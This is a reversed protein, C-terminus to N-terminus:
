GIRIDIAVIKNYTEETGNIITMVMCIYNGSNEIEVDSIIYVSDNGISTNLDTDKYWVYSPTNCGQAFCTLEIFPTTTDYYNKDPSKTIVTYEYPEYVFIEPLTQQYMDSTAIEHIVECRFIANNDEKQIEISLISTRNINCEELTDSYFTKNYITTSGSSLKTWRIYGPPAGVLGSCSYSVNIGQCVNSDPTRIPVGDPKNPIGKVVISHGNSTQTNYNSLQVDCRYATNDDCIIRNYEVVTRNESSILNKLTVRGELYNGHKTFVTLNDKINFIIISRYESGGLRSFYTIRDVVDDEEVKVVCSLQVDNSGLFPKGDQQM